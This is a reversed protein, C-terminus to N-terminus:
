QGGNPEPPVADALAKVRNVDDVLLDVKAANEYGETEQEQDIVSLSSDPVDDQLEAPEPWEQQRQQGDAEAQMDAPDYWQEAM